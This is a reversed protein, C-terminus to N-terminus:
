AYESSHVTSSQCMFIIAHLIGHNWSILHLVTLSQIFSFHLQWERETRAPHFVEPAQGLQTPLQGEGEQGEAQLLVSVEGLWAPSGVGVCLIPPHLIAAAERHKEWSVCISKLMRGQELSPSAPISCSFCCEASPEEKWSQVDKPVLAPKKEIIYLTANLSIIVVGSNKFSRSFCDSKLCSQALVAARQPRQSTPWTSGPQLCASSRQDWCTISKRRSRSLKAQLAWLGTPAWWCGSFKGPGAPSGQPNMWVPLRVESSARDPPSSHSDNLFLFLAEVCGPCVTGMQKSLNSGASSASGGVAGSQYSGWASFAM